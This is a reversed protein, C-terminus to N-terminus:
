VSMPQMIPNRMAMAEAEQPTNGWGIIHFRQDRHSSRTGHKSVTEFYYSEMYGVQHRLWEYAKLLPVPHGGAVVPATGM